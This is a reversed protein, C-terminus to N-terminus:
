SKGAGGHTEYDAKWIVRTTTSDIMENLVTWWARERASMPAEDVASVAVNGGEFASKFYAERDRTTLIVIQLDQKARLSKLFQTGLLNRAILDSFGAIVITKQAM